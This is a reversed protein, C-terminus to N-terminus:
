KGSLSHIGLVNGRHPNAPQQLFDLRPRQWASSLRRGIKSNQRLSGLQSFRARFVQVPKDAETTSKKSAAAGLVIASLYLWKSRSTM